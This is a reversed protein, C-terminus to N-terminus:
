MCSPWSVSTSQPPLAYEFHGAQPAPCFQLSFSSQTLLRQEILLMHAVIAGVLVGEAAGVEAGDLEGVDGLQWSPMALPSSVSMSQPPALQPGQWAYRFHRISGSQPLKVQLVPLVHLADADGVTAGVTFGVVFVAVSM